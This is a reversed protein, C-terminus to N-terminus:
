SKTIEVRKRAMHIVGILGRTPASTRLTSAGKLDQSRSDDWIIFEKLYGAKELQNLHDKLTQYDETTDKIEIIHVIFVVKTGKLLM